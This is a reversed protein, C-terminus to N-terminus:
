IAKRIKHPSGVPMRFRGDCNYDEQVLKRAALKAAFTKRAPEIGRSSCGVKLQFSMMFFDKKSKRSKKEIEM